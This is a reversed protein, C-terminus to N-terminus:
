FRRGIGASAITGRRSMGSGANISEIAIRGRLLIPGVLSQAHVWPDLDRNFREYEFSGLVIVQAYSAPLRLFTVVAVVLALRWYRM